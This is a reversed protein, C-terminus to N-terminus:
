NPKRPKKQNQYKRLADQVPATGSLKEPIKAGAACLLQVVGAYNGTKCYWGNESGHMAWGLPTGQYDNGTDELNPRHKLIEKVMEANGHWSAWHLATAGHQGRAGIPWGSELMLKVAQVNSNQAADVLKRAEDDSLQKLLGPRKALLEGFTKEDGLELAQSLKVEEPSKEMLFRFVEEHGFQRAVMQPTKNQGLTWIYITGGRPNKSRSINTSVSM